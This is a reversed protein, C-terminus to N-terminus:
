RLIKSYPDSFMEDSDKECVRVYTYMFVRPFLVCENEKDGYRSGRYKSGQRRMSGLGAVIRPITQTSVM